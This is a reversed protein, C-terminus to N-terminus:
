AEVARRYAGVHYGHGREMGEIYEAFIGCAFAYNRLADARRLAALAEEDGAPAGIKGTASRLAREMEQTAAREAARQAALAEDHTWAAPSLAMLDMGGNVSLHSSDGDLHQVTRSGGRLDSVVVHDGDKIGTFFTGTDTAGVVAITVITGARKEAIHSRITAGHKPHVAVLAEWGTVTKTTM